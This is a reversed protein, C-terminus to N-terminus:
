AENEAQSANHWAKDAGNDPLRLTPFSFPDITRAQLVATQFRQGSATITAGGGAM